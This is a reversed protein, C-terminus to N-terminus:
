MRDFLSSTKKLTDIGSSIAAFTAPPPPPNLPCVGCPSSASANSISISIPPIFQHQQQQPHYQLQQMHQLSVQQQNTGGTVGQQMNAASYTMQNPFGGSVGSAITEVGSQSNFQNNTNQVPFTGNHDAPPFGMGFSGASQLQGGAKMVAMMSMNPGQQAGSSYDFAQQQHTSNPNHQLQQFTNSNPSGTATMQQMRFNQFQSQLQQPINCPYQQQPVQNAVQFTINAAGSFNSKQQLLNSNVSWNYDPLYTLYIAQFYYQVLSLLLALLSKSEELSHEVKFFYSTIDRDSSSLLLALSNVREPITEALLRKLDSAVGTELCQQQQHHQQQLQGGMALSILQHSKDNVLSHIKSVEEMFFQIQTFLDQPSKLPGQSNTFLYLAFAMSCLNGCRKMVDSCSSLDATQQPPSSSSSHPNPSNLQVPLLAESQLYSHLINVQNEVVSAVRKMELGLRRVRSLGLYSTPPMTTFLQLTQPSDQQALQAAATDESTTTATATAVVEHMLSSFHHMHSNWVETFVALNENAIKSSPYLAATQASLLLQHSFFGICVGCWEMRVRQRTSECLVSRLLGCLNQYQDAYMQFKTSEKEVASISQNAAASPGDGGRGAAGTNNSSSSSSSGSAAQKFFSLSHQMQETQSTLCLASQNLVTSHLTKVLDDLEASFRQLLKEVDGGGGEMETSFTHCIYLIHDLANFIHSKEEEPVSMAVQSAATNSNAATSTTNTNYHTTATSSSSSPSFLSHLESRVACILERVRKVSWESMSESAVSDCMLVQVQTLLQQVSQQKNSASSQCCREEGAVNQDQTCSCCCDGNHGQSRCMCGELAQLGLAHHFSRLTTHLLHYVSDRTKQASNCEPHRLLTKSGTLLMMTGKELVARTSSLKCSCCEMLLDNQREGSLQALQVMSSGFQSFCQVFEQFNSVTSEMHTLVSVVKHYTTLIGGVKLSDAMNLLQVLSYLVNFSERVVNTMLSRLFVDEVDGSDGGGGGRGTGSSSSNSCMKAGSDVLRCLGRTWGSSKKPHLCWSDFRLTETPWDRKESAPKIIIENVWLGNVFKGCRM